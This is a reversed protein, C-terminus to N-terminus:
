KRAAAHLAATVEANKAAKFAICDGVQESALALPRAVGELEAVRPRFFSELDARTSEDCATALIGPTLRMDRSSARRVVGDFNEKFWAWLTDRAVRERPWFQYLYTLEGIRTQPALAPALFKRLLAADESMAMAAIISRRFNEERSKQFMALVREGFASGETLLGARLAESMLSIPLGNANKGQSAVFVNADAALAALVKADRAEEVMIKVLAARALADGLKENPRARLGMAALRPAFLKGVFARYALLGDAAILNLRIGRLADAMSLPSRADIEGLLDWRASPALNSLVQFFDAASAKGARLAAHFNHFLALQDAPGLKAADAILAKWGAEDLAFRYYGKGNANPMLAPPCKDGLPVTASAADILKCMKEGGLAAMCMPVKWHHDAARRGLPVYTSQTVNAAAPAACQLQVQLFPIGPQDIFESFAQVIEPHSTEHAITGIFDKSTANGFAFKNLYARVGQKFADEGLFSEFMALVAAGKDYSIRDFASAIDDPGNVPQHVRKASPLEDFQMIQMGGRAIDRDFEFQPVVAAAAKYEVWNAFSENLWTDDWWELTVLDGFWQHAIEHSQVLLSSRKQDLPANADMLLLRERYTIAGANEMAGAAFDPVAITDLKQFPFGIGFYNELATVIKPTFSLAYRINAGKGKAAIGRLRVPHSRYKNPPLVGGEVIDLPGVALALLYTPLPKTKEFVTRAMGNDLPTTSTVPTNGIVKDGGPAIVTVDFPTKFSPEDFSPFAKRAAIAEFQTFAYANGGDMVRYIGDLSPDFPADYVFILKAQGAPLEGAFTLQAVGSKHVQKYTAPVSSGNALTASAQAVNIGDGHMYISTQPASVNVDIEARGSFREAKPDITFDLRYHTPTVLRPLRGVPISGDSAPLAQQQPVPESKPQAEQQDCAALLVLCAVAAARAGCAGRADRAGRAGYSLIM